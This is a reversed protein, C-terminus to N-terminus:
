RRCDNRLVHNIGGEEMVSAPAYPLRLEIMTGTSDSSHIGVGFPHGFHLVLRYHVNFMGIGREGRLNTGEKVQFESLSQFRGNLNDMMESSMGKGRDSILLSFYQTTPFGHIGIYVPKLKHKDYGHIFCNEIIPQLSLRVTLVQELWEPAIAVDTEFSRYREKQIDLYTLTHKLEQQLTVMPCGEEAGYRFMDALANTMRSIPWYGELIASSNIVELTNYLFHPNIRSQLAALKADRQQIQMEKEKLQATHNEVILRSIETVMKNFSRHVSGIEDQYSAPARITLDGNEVKKMLKKLHLLSKTLYLSFGGVMLLAVIVLALWILISGNKTRDLTKILEHIPIVSVITWNSLESRHYIILQKSHKGKGSDDVFYGKSDPLFDRWKTEPVPKGFNNHDPHYVYRHDADMIWAYGTEGLKVGEIIKSFESLYLDLVVIGTPQFHLTDMFKRYVTIVPQMGVYSVGKIEFKPGSDLQDIYSLYREQSEVGGFNNLILGNASVIIANHIDSRGFILNPLLGEQIKRKLYFRGMADDPQLRSFEQILPHTVLPYTMQELSTFYTDLQGNMQEVLTLSYEIANSEIARTSSDYWLWGFAVFPIGMFGIIIFM